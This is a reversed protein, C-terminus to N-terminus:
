EFDELSFLQDYNKATKMKRGLIYRWDKAPIGTGPRKFGIDERTLVHGAPLDKAVVLSRRMKTKSALEAESDIARKFSGMSNGVKQSGEVIKKMQSPIISVRKERCEQGELRFHKEILCSGLAVSSVPIATSISHDSFGVPLHFANQLTVINRLNVNAEPTPYVSVCHLLVIEENGASKIVDVAEAIEAMSAMGTSMVIPVGKSAAYRLLDHHVLDYSAIKIYPVGLSILMDVQEKSFPTSSFIIGNEDCHRKLEQHKEPSLALQKKVAELGVVSFGPRVYDSQMDLATRSEMTDWAWSQFKVADCGANAAASILQKATEMSGMHNSGLEAIIFPKTKNTLRKYIESTM